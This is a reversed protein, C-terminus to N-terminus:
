MWMAPNDKPITTFSMNNNINNFKSICTARTKDCGASVAVADGISVGPIPYRLQINGGSYHNTIMRSYTGVTIYGLTYYGAVVSGIEPCRFALGTSSIYSITGDITYDAKVMQCYSDYLTHQCGPGYRYRPVIQKLFHEFGVCNVKAAAGKFSIDKIQGIFVPTTEEVGLDRHIKHVSIWILETPALAIFEMAPQTVRAVTMSMSNVELNSDWRVQEREITAPTYTEGNYVVAVDGSTYRWHSVGKWIHFLEAPIREQGEEKAIFENSQSKM